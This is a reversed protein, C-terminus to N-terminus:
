MAKLPHLLTCLLEHMEGEAAVGTDNIHIRCADSGKEKVSVFNKWATVLVM